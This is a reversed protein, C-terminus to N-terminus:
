SSLFETRKFRVRSFEVQKETTTNSVKQCEGVTNCNDDFESRKRKYGNVIPFVLKEIGTKDITQVVFHSVMYHFALTYGERLGHGAFFKDWGKGFALEGDKTSLIVKWVQNNSDEINQLAKRKKTGGCSGCSGSSAEPQKRKVM